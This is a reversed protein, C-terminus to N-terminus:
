LLFLRENSRTVNATVPSAQPKMNRAITGSHRGFSRQVGRFVSGYRSWTTLRTALGLVALGDTIPLYIKRIMISADNTNFLFDAEYAEGSNHIIAEKRQLSLNRTDHAILETVREQFLLKEANHFRLQIATSADDPACLNLQQENSPRNSWESPVMLEVRKGPDTYERWYPETISNKQSHQNIQV